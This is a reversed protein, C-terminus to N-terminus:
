PQSAPLRALVDASRYVHLYDLGNLWIIRDPQIGVLDGVQGDRQQNYYDVVVYQSDRLISVVQPDSLNLYNMVATQGPFYYSFSGLGNVSMVLMDRANPKTALYAAAQDLGVGYGTEVLTPNQVGPHLAEVLPDYYTIYYPYAGLSSALQLGLIIVLAAAMIWGKAFKLRQEALLQLTRSWGLGAVLDLVVYTTLTYHPSRRGRQISFLVLMLGGLLLTSWILRADKADGESKPRIILTAVALLFGLLTLPSLRWFLDTLYFRFGPAMQSLRLIQASIGFTPGSRTGQFTYGLADGYVHGLIAAPEVWMGPWILVYTVAAGIVWIGIIRVTDLIAPGFRRDRSGMAAICTLLGAVPFLVIGSSKSLQALGAAAASLLLFQWNRGSFLYILLSLLSIVLFLALMAEHNLLRSHGLFYPSLSILATTFLAKQAGCLRRLLLYMILLLALIVIVQLARSTVLLQLLSKGHELMFADFKGPKLYGQGLNRYQPFYLLMGAAILWMTTVAPHYTYYMSAFDRQGLAYFFNGSVRLWFPEDISTFRGLGVFRPVASVAILLLILGIEKLRNM